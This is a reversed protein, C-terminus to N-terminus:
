APQEATAPDTPTPTPTPSPSPLCVEGSPIQLSAPPSATMGGAEVYDNGLLVDVSHDPRNDAQIEPNTFWAAVLQVEPNDAAAGVVVVSLAREETNGVHNVIFGGTELAKSVRSALGRIDGSNYVNVTVAGTTLETMPVPVCSPPPVTPVKATVAKFGWVTGVILLALLIILTVPTSLIRRLRQQNM